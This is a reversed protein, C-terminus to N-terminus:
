RGAFRAARARDYARGGVRKALKRADWGARQLTWRLPKGAALDAAAAAGVHRHVSGRGVLVCGDVRWLTRRPESTCLVAIGAAGASRAVRQSYWGGPISATDVPQGLLESLVAVSERWEDLLQSTPCSDMRKPHSRSHSGVVHGMRQLAVVEDQSMFSPTGILDTVVFFHGRWGRRALEEGVETASSGGDDFTLSWSGTSANGSLADHLTVPDRGTKRRILDLHGRFTDWDLKYRAPGAGSFGSSDDDGPRVVDHYMLVSTKVASEAMLMRACDSLRQDLAYWAGSSATM